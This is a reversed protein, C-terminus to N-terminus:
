DEDDKPLPTIVALGGVRKFIIRPMDRQGLESQCLSTIESLATSQVADIESETCNMVAQDSREVVALIARALLSQRAQEDENIIRLKDSVSVFTMPGCGNPCAVNQSPQPTAEPSLMSQRLSAAFADAVSSLWSALSMDQWHHCTKCIYLLM